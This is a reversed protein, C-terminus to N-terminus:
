LEGNQSKADRVQKLQTGIRGIADILSDIDLRSEDKQPTRQSISPALYREFAESLRSDPPPHPLMRLVLLFQSIAVFVLLSLIGVGYFDIRRVRGFLPVDFCPEEHGHEAMQRNHISSISETFRQVEAVTTAEINNEVEISTGTRNRSNVPHGISERSTKECAETLATQLADYHETLGQTTSKEIYGRIMGWVSKSFILAGHVVLRAQGSGYGMVCYTCLVHFSECYPVGSNQTEQVITYGGTFETYVQRETVVCTEPAMAHNLAMTYTCTRRRVGDKDTAWESASYGSYKLPLKAHAIHKLASSLQVYWPSNTFLLDFLQSPSKPFVQDLLKKGTHDDCSCETCRIEDPIDPRSNEESVPQHIRGRQSQRTTTRLKSSRDFPNEIEEDAFPSPLETEDFDPEYTFHTIRHFPAETLSSIRFAGDVALNQLREM